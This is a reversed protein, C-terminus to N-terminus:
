ATDMTMVSGLRFTLIDLAQKELAKRLVISFTFIDRTVQEELAKGFAILLLFFGHSRQHETKIGTARSCTLSFCAPLYNEEVSRRPKRSRPKLLNM